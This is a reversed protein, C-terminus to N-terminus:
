SPINLKILLGRPLDRTHRQELGIAIGLVVAAAAIITLDHSCAQRVKISTV